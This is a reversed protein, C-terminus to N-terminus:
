DIWGDLEHGNSRAPCFSPNKKNFAKETTIEKYPQNTYM